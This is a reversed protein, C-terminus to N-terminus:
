DVDFATYVQGTINVGGDTETPKKIVSRAIGEIEYYVPNDDPESPPKMKNGNPTNSVATGSVVTIQEKVGDGNVDIKRDTVLQQSSGSTRICITNFNNVFGAQLDQAM